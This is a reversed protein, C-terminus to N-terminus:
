GSEREKLSELRWVERQVDKVRAEWEAWVEGQGVVAVEMWREMLKASRVRLEAVVQAQVEQQEKVLDLRPQLDALAASALAPPVPVDKLSSLRASTQSFLSAHALVIATIASGDLTKPVISEPVM